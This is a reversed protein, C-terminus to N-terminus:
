RIRRFVDLANGGFATAYVNRGDPSVALSSVGRLARGPSCGPVSSPAVCGARGPKQAVVGSKGRRDLVDIAGTAFAAVYVNEGDPSVVVGEPS